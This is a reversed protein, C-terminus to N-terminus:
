SDPPHVEFSLYIAAFVSALVNNAEKVEIGESLAYRKASLAFYTGQAAWLFGAAFGGVIGGFLAVAIELDPRSNPIVLALPFSIVYVCYLTCAVCLSLKAGMQDILGTAFVMATIAYSLYLSGNEYNGNDGLLGNALTLVSVVTAHNISFCVAM